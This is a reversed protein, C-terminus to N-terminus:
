GEGFEMYPESKPEPKALDLTHRMIFWDAAGFAQVANKESFHYYKTPSYWKSLEPYMTELQKLNHMREDYQKSKLMQVNLVSKCYSAKILEKILLNMRAEAKKKFVAQKDFVNAYNFDMSSLGLRVEIWAKRVRKAVADIVWFLLLSSGFLFFIVLCLFYGISELLPSHKHLKM